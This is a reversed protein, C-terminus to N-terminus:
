DTLFSWGAPLGPDIAGGLLSHLLVHGEDLLLTNRIAEFAMDGIPCLGIHYLPAETMLLQSIYGAELLCFDRAAKGYIASVLHLQGILFLSFAAREFLPQNITGHLERTLHDQSSLQVLQHTSPNHYYMGAEIGEISRPKLALYVQVPYIGGASPYLYKPLGDLEVRRLLALFSSFQTLSIPSQRFTRYSMRQKYRQLPLTSGFQALSLAPMGELDERLSARGFNVNLAQTTAGSQEIDYTFGSDDRALQQLGNLYATFMADVFGEAFLNEVVSWCFILAGDIEAVQHNLWINPILTTCHVIEPWPTASSRQSNDALTSPCTFVVPLMARANEERERAMERLVHIGSYHRHDLGQLIKEHLHKVRQEFSDAATHEVTLVMTFAFMGALHEIQPHLPWRYTSNFSISFRSKRSHAALIETFATVLLDSPAVGLRAAQAKLRTWARADLSGQLSVYNPRELSDLSRVLPLDPAPPIDAILSLWYTRAREYLASQQLKELSLIYDRFSYTLPELVVDPNAYLLSFEDALRQISEMDLFLGEIGLHLRSRRDKLRTVGVQYPPWCNAPLVQQVMTHRIQELGDAMQQPDCDSLDHLSAYLSPVYELIQQQGSPLIVARLMDHRVILRQLAQHFRQLDLDVVDVEIYMHNGSWGLDLAAGRGAWYALQIETLPFPRYRDTPDPLIPAPFEIVDKARGETLLAVIDAKQESLKQLLETNLVGKPARYRLRGDEAWLLVGRATLDAIFEDLNM